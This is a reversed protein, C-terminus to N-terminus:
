LLRGGDIWEHLLKEGKRLNCTQCAVVINSISNIGGRSIPIIHDAHWGKKPLTKKCYYCKNKQRKIQEQLERFTYTGGNGKLHARRRHRCTKSVLKGHETQLWQKQGARIVELHTERYANIQAKHTDRYQKHHVHRVPKTERYYQAHRAQVTDKHETYYKKGYENGQEPHKARYEIGNQKHCEKCTTRLGGEKRKDNNFYESTAPLMKKCRSCQKEQYERLVIDM